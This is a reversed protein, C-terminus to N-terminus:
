LKIPICATEFTFLVVLFVKRLVGPTHEKLVGIEWCLACFCVSFFAYLTIYLVSIGLLYFLFNEKICVFTAAPCDGKSM